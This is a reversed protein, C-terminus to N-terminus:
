VLVVVVVVVSVFVSVSVGYSANGDVGSSGTGVLVVETVM